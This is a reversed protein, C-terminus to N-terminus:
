KKKKLDKNIAAISKEFKSLLIQFEDREKNCLLEAFRNGYNIDQISIYFKDYNKTIQFNKFSVIDGNKLKKINDPTKLFIIIKAVENKTLITSVDEKITIDYFTLYIEYSTTKNNTSKDTSVIFDNCNMVIEGKENYIIYQNEFKREIGYTLNEEEINKKFKEVSQFEANAWLGVTDEVLKSTITQAILFTGSFFLIIFFIITRM